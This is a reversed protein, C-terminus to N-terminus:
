VDREAGTRYSAEQPDALVTTKFFTFHLLKPSSTFLTPVGDASIGEPTCISSEWAKIFTV